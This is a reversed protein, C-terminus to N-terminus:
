FLPPPSCELDGRQIFYWVGGASPLRFYTSLFLFVFCLVFFEQAGVQKELVISLGSNIVIRTVIIWM